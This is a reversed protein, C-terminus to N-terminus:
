KAKVFKYTGAQGNTTLHLFYIGADLSELNVIMESDEMNREGLDIMVKGLMNVIRINVKIARM